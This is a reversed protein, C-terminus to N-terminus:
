SVHVNIFSRVALDSGHRGDFRRKSDGDGTPSSPEELIFRSDGAVVVSQHRSSISSSHRNVVPLSMCKPRREPMDPKATILSITRPTDKIEIFSSDLENTITTDKEDLTIVSAEPSPAQVNEKILPQKLEDM